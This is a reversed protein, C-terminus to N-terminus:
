FLKSYLRAAVLLQGDVKLANRQVQHERSKQALVRGYLRETDLAIQEWSFKEAVHQRGVAGMRIADAPHEFMQNITAALGLSDGAPTMLGTEGQRVVECIGPIDSAVVPKGCANAELLVIGQTEHFSPLVLAFSSRIHEFVQASPLAGTLLIRDKLGSQEITRELEAREPGDGVMVLRVDPRVSKMAEVLPFIGKIRDLRGVFLLTKSLVFPDAPIPFEAPVDVGNPLITTRAASDPEMSEIEHLMERSVAICADARRLTKKEFFTAWREHLRVDFSANAHRGSRENEVSVLGHFTAVLPTAGHKGSFGFGSRGQVHVIDFAQNNRRLWQTAAQNFAWEEALIPLFPLKRGPLYPIEIITRGERQLSRTGTRWNGATLISVEHGMRVLWESLKWTHTQIGGIVAPPLSKCVFLIKMTANKQAILDTTKEGFQYGDTCRPCFIRPHHAM